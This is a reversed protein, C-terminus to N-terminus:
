YRFKTFQIIGLTKSLDYGKFWARFDTVSLGDNGSLTELPYHVMGQLKPNDTELEIRSCGLDLYEFELKQVGIGSDKDFKLIERTKSRYPKETWEFLVLVAEGANVEDIRKKWLEYNARITHCKFIIKSNCVDCTDPSVHKCEDCSLATEIKEKFKTEEGARPHTAPFLRSIPMRYTKIKKM